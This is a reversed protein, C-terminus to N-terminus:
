KAEESCTWLDVSTDRTGIARHIKYSGNPTFVEHTFTCSFKIWFSNPKEYEQLVEWTVDTIRCLLGDIVAHRGLFLEKLKPTVEKAELVKEEKLEESSKVPEKKVSKRFFNM